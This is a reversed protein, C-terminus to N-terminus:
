LSLKTLLAASFDPDLMLSPQTESSLCYDPNKKRKELIIKDKPNMRQCNGGSVSSDEILEADRQFLFGSKWHSQFCGLEPCM